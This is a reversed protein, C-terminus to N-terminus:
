ISEVLENFTGVDEVQPNEPDPDIVDVMVEQVDIAM